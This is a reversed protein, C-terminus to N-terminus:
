CKAFRGKGKTEGKDMKLHASAALCAANRSLAVSEECGDVTM